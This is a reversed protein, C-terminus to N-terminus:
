AEAGAAAIRAPVVAYFPFRDEERLASGLEPDIVVRDRLHATLRRDVHLFRWVARGGPRVARALANMLSDFDGQDLWDPVNSLHAGDFAARPAGELFSVLDAHEVRLREGASRVREFGGRALYAPVTDPTLVRGLVHLQLLHNERAPTATCLARFSEFYQDGLSRASDRHRLGRPDMGRGSYVRPHFLLRFIARLPTREFRARFVEEQEERSGASFLARFGGAFPAGAIRAARRVFREYRGAWVAGREAAGGHERWFARSDVPLVEAVRQLWARRDRRGAPLYGLFAIASERELTRVAALKLQLLHLQAADVDVATVREAGLALLSLPMDGASAVSLHHGGPLGLAAAETREDEQSLGFNYLPKV